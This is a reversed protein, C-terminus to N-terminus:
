GISALELRGKMKVKIIEKLVRNESHSLNPDGELKRLAEERAEKLIKGDRMIDAIRFEPIGSQRIGLFEGPGRMRLDEEAIKFGDNTTIMVDLRRKADDSREFQALLICLSQHGGRGVRGRLQHLQSLGFREAHEIVMVTANPID